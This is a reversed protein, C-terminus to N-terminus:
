RPSLPGARTRGPATGSSTAGGPACRLLAFAPAGGRERVRWICFAPALSTGPRRWEDLHSEVRHLGAGPCMAVVRFGSCRGAGASALYLLGPGIIDGAKAM